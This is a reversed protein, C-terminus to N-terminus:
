LVKCPKATNVPKIHLVKTPNCLVFYKFQSNFFGEWLARFLFPRLTVKTYKFTHLVTLIYTSLVLLKLKRARSGKNHMEFLHWSKLQSNWGPNTNSNITKLYLQCKLSFYLLFIKTLEVQKILQEVDKRCIVIHWISSSPISLDIKFAM